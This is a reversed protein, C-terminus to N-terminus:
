KNLLIKRFRAIEDKDAGTIPQNQDLKSKIFLVRKHEPYALLIETIAEEVMENNPLDVAATSIEQKQWTPRNKIIAELTALKGPAITRIRSAYKHLGEMQKKSLGGREQYFRSLSGIFENEPRAALSKELIEKVIDIDM